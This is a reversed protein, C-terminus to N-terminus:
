GGLCIALVLLGYRVFFSVRLVQRRYRLLVGSIALGSIIACVVYFFNQPWGGRTQVRGSRTGWRRM